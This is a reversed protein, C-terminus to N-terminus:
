RPNSFVCVGNHGGFAFSNSMVHGLEKRRALNPAYDLDLEPDPDTLNITPPIINEQLAKCCIVAEVGAAGGLCHGTMSKTSSVVISKAHEGFVSKIAQTEYLDNMNTSTGHANLYDIDTPKLGAIDLAMKMCDAMGLGGPAPSLINYAESSLAPPPMEAYIRAGRRKASDMSEVVLIGAGEGIVFGSRKGDFPRSASASDVDGDALAMLSCFGDVDPRNISADTSGCVVADCQGSVILAWAASLAYNGSSCATAVVFSPGTYKQRLSVWTAPSNAMNRLIRHEDIKESEPPVYGTGAIGIVVGIRNKPFADENLAADVIAMDATVVAMKTQRTMQRRSRPKIHEAFLDDAGQPLEVGFPCALGAPDFITFPKTANRGEVLGHWSSELDLGLGTMLGLGTIAVTNSKM